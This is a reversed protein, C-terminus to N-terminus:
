QGNVVLQLRARGDQWKMRERMWGMTGSKHKREAPKEPAAAVEKTLGLGILALFSVFDDHTANPFKMLENMAPQYWSAFKPLHVKRQQTRGQISRARSKLDRRGPSIPDISCYTKAENMRKRLFPGISKRIHEDEAWWVLPKREKMILLMAEVLDDTEVREWFIDPPIWIDDNEDLAFAGMCTADNAEDTTLAHDSAAYWRVNTPFKSMSDYAAAEFDAKKFYDGDEPAPQGMYLAWFTVKDLQCAEALFKLSKREEWLAAMPRSPTVLEGEADRLGFQELIEPDTQTELTLGLAAALAPDTVVAPVNIYTWKKAIDPDHDPHATDVLRGILDDENWRTHVIVVPSFKHIRTFAVKNFWAWVSKRITPSQAELDDKIPDDVTFLDAPKGTGAGGRGLFSLKGGKTTVLSDKAKSGKRLAFNPFVQRFEPSLMINRVDAGFDEAFDQSYTGLMRHKHPNRGAAWAQFGRSIVDSKGHQPPISVCVRLKEGREVTEMLECLLRAVPTRQFASKEPDEPFDPHPNIFCLFELLSERARLIAKMRKAAALQRELETPERVAEAM